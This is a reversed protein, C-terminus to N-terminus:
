AKGSVPIIIDDYTFCDDIFYVFNGSAQYVQNVQKLLQSHQQMKQQKLNTVSDTSTVM